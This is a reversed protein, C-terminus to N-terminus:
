GACSAAFTSVKPVAANIKHSTWVVYGSALDFTYTEITEGRLWATFSVFNEEYAVANITFGADRYSFSRAVDTVEIDFTGLRSDLLLTLEGGDIGDALFFDGATDSRFLHTFGTSQGCTVLVQRNSPEAKETDATQASPVETTLMLTAISAVAIRYTM